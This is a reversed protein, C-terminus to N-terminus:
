YTKVTTKCHCCSLGAAGVRWLKLQSMKDFGKRAGWKCGLWSSGAAAVGLVVAHAPGLVCSFVVVIFASDKGLCEVHVCMSAM